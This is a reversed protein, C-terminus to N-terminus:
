PESELLKRVKYLTDIAPQATFSDIEKRSQSDGLIETLERLSDVTLEVAEILKLVTEPNAANYFRSKANSSLEYNPYIEDAEKALSKLKTLLNM